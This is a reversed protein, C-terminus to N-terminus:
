AGLLARFPQEDLAEWDEAIRGGEVRFITTGYVTVTRGTPAEGGFSGTHTGSGTFRLAVRHGDVLQDEVRVTFDPVGKRIWGAGACFGDFDLDAPGSHHVYGPALLTRLETWNGANYATVYRELLQEAQTVM